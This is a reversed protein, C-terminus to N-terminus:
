AAACVMIETSVGERRVRVLLLELPYTLMALVGGMAYSTRCVRVVLNWWSHLVGSRSDMPRNLLHFMPRREVVRLGAAILAAEYQALSRIVFHTESPEPHHVFNDSLFIRGDPKLARRMNLLATHLRADDVVHFLVDMCSVADYAGVTREDGETIDMRFLDVAPFETRLRGVATDTLDTGTARAAGLEQWCRLYEGTGSGIDLVSKTHLASVHGRVTRKFVARRVRYMWTNFAHGLGLYGVGELGSSRALRQEWYSRPDFTTMRRIYFPVDAGLAHAVLQGHDGHAAPRLTRM